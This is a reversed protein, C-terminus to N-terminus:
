GRARRRKASRRRLVRDILASTRPYRRMVRAFKRRAWPSNRLILALGAAFTFMGGPGPLLAVLPTALILMSGLILLLIQM